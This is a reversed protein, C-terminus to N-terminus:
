NCGVSAADKWFNGKRTSVCHFARTAERHVKGDTRFMLLSICCCHCHCRMKKGAGLHRTSHWFGRCSGAQGVRPLSFPREQNVPFCDPFPDQQGVHWPWHCSVTRVAIGEGAVWWVSNCLCEGLHLWPVSLTRSAVRSHLASEIADTGTHRERPGTSLAWESTFSVPDAPIPLWPVRCRGDPWPCHLCMCSLPAAGIAAQGLLLTCRRGTPSRTAGPAPQEALM